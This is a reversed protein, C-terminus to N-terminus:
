TIIKGSVTVTATGPDTNNEYTVNYYQEPLVSFVSKPYIKVTPEGTYEFSTGSLVVRCDSLFIGWMDSQYEGECEHYESYVGSHDGTGFLEVKYRFFGSLETIYLLHDTGGTLKEGDLYVTPYEIINSWWNFMASFVCASIFFILSCFRLRAPRDTLGETM